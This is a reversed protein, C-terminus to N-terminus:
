TWFPAATPPRRKLQQILWLRQTEWEETEEKSCDDKNVDYDGDYFFDDDSNGDTDGNKLHEVLLGCHETKDNAQNAEWKAWEEEDWIASDNSEGDSNASPAQDDSDAPTPTLSNKADFNSKTNTDTTPPTPTSHLLAPPM